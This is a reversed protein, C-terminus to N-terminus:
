ELFCEAEDLYSTITAFTDNHTLERDAATYEHYAMYCWSLARLLIVREM